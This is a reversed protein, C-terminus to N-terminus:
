ATTQQRPSIAPLLPAAGSDYRCVVGVCGLSCIRAVIGSHLVEKVKWSTRIDLGAAMDQVIDALTCGDLVLYDQWSHPTLMSSRSPYQLLLLCHHM